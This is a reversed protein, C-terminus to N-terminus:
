SYDLVEGIEATEVYELLDMLAYYDEDEQKDALVIADTIEEILDERHGEDNVVGGFSAFRYLPSGGGGHWNYSLEILPHM